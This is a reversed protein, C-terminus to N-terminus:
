RSSHFCTLGRSEGYTPSRLCLFAGHSGRRLVEPEAHRAGACLRPQPSIPACKHAAYASAAGPLRAQNRQWRAGNM